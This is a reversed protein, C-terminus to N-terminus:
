SGWGRKKKKEKKIKKKTKKYKKDQKQCIIFLDNEDYNRNAFVVRFNCIELLNQL